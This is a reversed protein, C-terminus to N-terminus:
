RRLIDDMEVHRHEHRTRHEHIHKHKMTIRNTHFLKLTNSIKLISQKKDQLPELLHSHYHRSYDRLNMFSKLTSKCNKSSM